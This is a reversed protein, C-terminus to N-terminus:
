PAPPRRSFLRRTEIAYWALLGPVGLLLDPIRKAFSLALSFQIPLGLMQGILIYGGEQVGWSGPVFFAASSISAGLSELIIAQQLTVPWGMFHLAFWVELTGFMWAFAHMLLAVIVYLRRGRWIEEMAVQFGPETAQARSALRASLKVFTRDISRAGAYRQVVYFGGLATASVAIGLLAGAFAIGPGTLRALLLAGVLAFLAQAITQLLLDAVVSAIAVAGPVNWFTLMRAGVLGGGISAVPLLVDVAERIWRLLAFIGTPVNTLNALLRGWAVGNTAVMVARVAVIAVVGWGVETFSRLVATLSAASVLWVTVALGLSLGLFPVIKWSIKTDTRSIRYGDPCEFFVGRPSRSRAIRIRWGHCDEIRM